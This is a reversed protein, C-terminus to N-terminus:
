LYIEIGLNIGLSFPKRVYPSQNNFTNTLQYRGELLAFMGVNRGFKIQTGITVVGDILFMNMKDKIITKETQEKKFEDLTTEEHKLSLFAKPVIGVGGYFSIDEGYTYAIRIPFAISRYTNTYRFVSDNSTFDYTEANQFYGAGIEFKLFHNLRTRVGLFYSSTWKAKEDERYGLPKAFLGDNIKLTRFTYAPNIGAFLEIGNKPKLSDQKQKPNEKQQSQKKDTKSDNSIIQTYGHTSIILSLLVFIKKM